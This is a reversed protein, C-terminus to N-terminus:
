SCTVAWGLARIIDSIIPLKNWLCLADVLFLGAAVGCCCLLLLAACGIIIWRAQNNPGEERVAYPDYDYGAGPPPQPPQPGYAPQGGQQSYGYPPPTPQGSAPSGPLQQAPQTQRAVPNATTPPMEAGMGSPRGARVLEYGLTVTEGLSILDGDNLPRAGTVKQTGVFTGNTSGLDELTFNGAGRTLRAHQRSIEPDNIVIDNIIDRGITMIDKNLEFVHSPQPGRRVVLRFQENGQQM